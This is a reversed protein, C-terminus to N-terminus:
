PTGRRPGHVLRVDFSEVWVLSLKGVEHAARCPGPYRSPICRVARSTIANAAAGEHATPSRMTTSPGSAGNQSCSRSDSQTDISQTLAAALATVAFTDDVVMAGLLGTWRMGLRVGHNGDVEVVWGYAAMKQFRRGIEYVEDLEIGVETADGLCVFIDVEQAIADDIAYDWMRLSESYAPHRKSIHRDGFVAIKKM